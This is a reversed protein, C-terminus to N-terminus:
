FVPEPKRTIRHARDRFSTHMQNGHLARLHGILEMMRFPKRLVEITPPLNRLREAAAYGTIMIGPLGPCIQAAQLFLEVGDVGVMALDSVLADIRVGSALIHLAKDGSEAVRVAYGASRLAAGLLKLVDPDDDVVLVTEQRDSTPVSHDGAGGNGVRRRPVRPKEGSTLRDVVGHLLAREGPSSSRLFHRLRALRVEPLGPDVKAVLCLLDLDRGCEKDTEHRLIAFLRTLVEEYPDAGSASSHETSPAFPGVFWDMSLLFLGALEVLLVASVRNRGMEYKYLQQYTLGIQRALRQQSVGSLRRIFRMREGIHLELEVAHFRRPPEARKADAAAITSAETAM